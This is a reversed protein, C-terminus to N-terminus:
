QGQKMKEDIYKMYEDRNKEFELILAEDKLIRSFRRRVISYARCLSQVMYAILKCIAWLSCTSCLLFGVFQMFELMM